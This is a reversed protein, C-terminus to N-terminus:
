AKVRRASMYGNSYITPLVKLFELGDDFSVRNYHKEKLITLYNPPESKIEDGDWWVTAVVKDGASVIEHEQERTEPM